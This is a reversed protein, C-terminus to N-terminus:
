PSCAIHQTDRWILGTPISFICRLSTNLVAGAVVPCHWLCWTPSASLQLNAPLDRSESRPWPPTQLVLESFTGCLLRFSPLRHCTFLHLRSLFVPLLHKWFERADKRKWTDTDEDGRFVYSWLWCQEYPGHCPFQPRAHTKALTQVLSLSETFLAAPLIKFFLNFFCAAVHSDNQGIRCAFCIAALHEM